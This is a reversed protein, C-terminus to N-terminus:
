KAPKAEPFLGKVYDAVAAMEEPKLKAPKMNKGGRKMVNVLSDKSRASIYAADWKSMKFQKALAAPPVGRAGHCSRCNKAYLDEGSGAAAQASLTGASLWLSAVLTLAGRLVLTM